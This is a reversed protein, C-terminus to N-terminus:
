TWLAALKARMEELFAALDTREAIFDLPDSDPFAKNWSQHRGGSRLYITVSLCLAEEFPISYEPWPRLKLPIRSQWSTIHGHAQAFLEPSWPLGLLTTTVLSHSYEHELLGVAVGLDSREYGWAAYKDLTEESEGEGSWAETSRGDPFVTSCWRGALDYEFICEGVPVARLGQEATM